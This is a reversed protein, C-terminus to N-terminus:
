VGRGEERSTIVGAALFADIEDDPIGGERLVERTHGALPPSPLRAETPTASMRVVPGVVRQAGDVPLGDGTNVAGDVNEGGVPHHAAGVQVFPGLVALEGDGGRHQGMHQ